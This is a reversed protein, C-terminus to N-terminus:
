RSADRVMEEGYIEILDGLGESPARLAKREKRAAAVRAAEEHEKREVEARQARLLLRDISGTRKLGQILAGSFRQWGNAYAIYAATTGGSATRRTQSYLMRSLELVRTATTSMSERLLGIEAVIQEPSMASISRSPTPAQIPSTAKTPLDNLERPTM